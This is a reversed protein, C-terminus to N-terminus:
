GRRRRKRVAETRFISQQVSFGDDDFIIILEVRHLGDNAADIQAAHSAVEAEIAAAVVDSRKLEPM